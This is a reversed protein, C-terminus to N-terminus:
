GTLTKKEKKRPPRDLIGPIEGTSSHKLFFGMGTQSATDTCTQQNTSQETSINSKIQQDEDKNMMKEYKAKSVLIFEKAMIGFIDLAPRLFTPVFKHKLILLSKKRSAGVSKSALQKIVSKFPKLQNVYKHKNPFVGKYINLAIESL